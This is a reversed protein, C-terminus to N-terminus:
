HHHGLAYDEFSTRHWRIFSHAPGPRANAIFPENESQVTNFAQTYKPLAAANTLVHDISDQGFDVLITTPSALAVQHM